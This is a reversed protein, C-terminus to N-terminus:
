VASIRSGSGVDERPRLLRVLLWVLGVFLLLPILPLLVAGGAVLVLLLGGAFLLVLLKGAGVLVALSAGVLWGVVRFPLLILSVLLKLALGVLMLPVLLLALLGLLLLFGVLLAELM